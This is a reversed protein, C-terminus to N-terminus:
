RRNASGGSDLTGCSRSRIPVSAADSSPRSIRLAAQTVERGLHLLDIAVRGDDLEDRHADARQDPLPVTVDGVIDGSAAKLM